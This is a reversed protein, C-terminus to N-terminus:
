HMVYAQAPNACDLEPEIDVIFLKKFANAFMEQANFGPTELVVGAAGRHPLLVQWGLVQLM